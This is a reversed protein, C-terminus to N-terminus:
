FPLGFAPSRWIIERIIKLEDSILREYSSIKQESESYYTRESENGCQDKETWTCWALLRQLIETLRYTKERWHQVEYLIFTVELEPRIPSRGPYRAYAEGDLPCM